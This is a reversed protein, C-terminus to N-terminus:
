IHFTFTFSNCIIFTVGNNIILKKFVFDFNIFFSSFLIYTLFRSWLRLELPINIFKVFIPYLSLLSESLLKSLIYLIM